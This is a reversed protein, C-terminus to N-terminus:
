MSVYVFGNRRDDIQWSSIDCINVNYQVLEQGNRFVVKLDARCSGSGDDLDLTMSRGPIIVRDGLRDDGWDTDDTNSAFVRWISQSANNDIRMVHQAAAIANTSQAVLGLGFILASVGRVINKKINM